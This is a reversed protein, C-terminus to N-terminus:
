IAAISQSESSFDSSYSKLRGDAAPVLGFVAASLGEIFRVVLRLTREM